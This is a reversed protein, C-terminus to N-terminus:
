KIKQLKKKRIYKEIDKKEYDLIIFKIDPDSKYLNDYNLITEIDKLSYKDLKDSIALDKIKINSKYESSRIIKIKNFLIIIDNFKFEYDFMIYLLIYSLICSIIIFLSLIIINDM